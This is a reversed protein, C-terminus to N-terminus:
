GGGCTVGIAQVAREAARGDFWSGWVYQVAQRRRARSQPGDALTIDVVEAFTSESPWHDVGPVHSWFRLGHNVDRRWREANLCGVPLDLAAAEYLISTNDGILADAVTLGIDVDDVTDVGISEWWRLLQGAWRPHEHGLLHVDPGSAVYEAISRRWEPWATGAEAIMRCDWHFTVLVTPPSARQAKPRYADLAPTGIIVTAADPYARTWAAAERENVCLFVDIRDLDRGGIYGHSDIPHARDGYYTQGVGHNMHFHLRENGVQRADAGGATIVPNGPGRPVGRRAEYCGLVQAPREFTAWVTGREAAPLAEWVPRITRWYHPMSIFCDVPM